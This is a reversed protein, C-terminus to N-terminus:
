SDKYNVEQVESANVKKLMKIGDGGDKSFQARAVCNQTLHLNRRWM